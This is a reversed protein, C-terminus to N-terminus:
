VSLKFMREIKKNYIFWETEWQEVNFISQLEEDLKFHIRYQNFNKHIAKEEKFGGKIVGSIELPFPYGSQIERFRRHVNKSVGIKCVGRISDSFLYVYSNEVELNNDINTFLEGNREFRLESFNNFATITTYQSNFSYYHLIIYLSNQPIIGKNFNEVDFGQKKLVKYLKHTKNKWVKHLSSASIGTLESLQKTNIVKEVNM